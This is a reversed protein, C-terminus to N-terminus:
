SVPIFPLADILALQAAISQIVTDRKKRSGNSLLSLFDSVMSLSAEGDGVECYGSIFIKALSDWTLVSPNLTAAAVLDTLAKVIGDTNAIIRSDTERYVIHALLADLFSKFVRRENLSFLVNGNGDLRENPLALADVFTSYEKDELCDQYERFLPMMFASVDPDGLIWSVQNNNAAARLLRVKDANTLLGSYLELNAIARHTADFSYSGCLDSILGEIKTRDAGSDLAPKINSVTSDHTVREDGKVTPSLEM